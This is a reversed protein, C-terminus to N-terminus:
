AFKVIFEGGNWWWLCWFNNGLQKAWHVWCLETWIHGWKGEIKITMRRERVDRVENGFLYIKGYETERFGTLITEDKHDYVMSFRHPYPSDWIYADDGKNNRESNIHPFEWFYWRKRHVKLVHYRMEPKLYKEHRQKKVTEFIKKFM